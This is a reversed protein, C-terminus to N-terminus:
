KKLAAHASEVRITKTNGLHRVREMWACVVKEKVVNEIYFEETSSNLINAWADMINEVVVSSKVMNGDEDKFDQTGVAPKLKVRVNKTIHYQCLLIYSTPFVSGVVNMLANDRDTVIVSPMNQPDKLLSKCINLEWTVNQKINSVNQPRKWILNALINKTAFKIISIELTIEKEDLKFRGVIPRGQPKTNSAHNHKGCIVSFWWTGDVRCSGHLKFPSECKRSGTDDHKLKRIKSVYKGVRKCRMTVFAQRKNTVNDSRVDIEAVIPKADDNVGDPKADYNVKPSVAKPFM